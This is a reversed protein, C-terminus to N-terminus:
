LIKTSYLYIQLKLILSILYFHTLACTWSQRDICMAYFFFLTTTMTTFKFSWQQFNLLAWSNLVPVTPHIYTLVSLTLLTDLQFNILVYLHSIAYSNPSTMESYALWQGAIKACVQYMSHSLSDATIPSHIAEMTWINFCKFLCLCYRQM